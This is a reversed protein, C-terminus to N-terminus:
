KKGGTNNLKQTEFSVLCGLCSPCSYDYVKWIYFSYSVVQRVQRVQRTNIIREMKYRGM